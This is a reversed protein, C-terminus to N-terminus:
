LQDQTEECNKHYPNFNEGDYTDDIVFNERKLDENTFVGGCISCDYDQQMTIEDPVEIGEPENTLWDDFSSPIYGSM